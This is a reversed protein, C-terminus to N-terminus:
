HQCFKWIMQYEMTLNQM